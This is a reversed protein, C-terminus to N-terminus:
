DGMRLRRYVSEERRANGASDPLSRQCWFCVVGSHNFSGRGCRSCPYTTLLELIEPKASRLQELMDSDLVNLSGSVEVHNGRLTVAIGGAGLRSLLERTAHLSHLEEDHSTVPAIATGNSEAARASQREPSEQLSSGTVTTVRTTPSASM